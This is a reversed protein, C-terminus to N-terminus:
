KCIWLNRGSTRRILVIKLHFHNHIMLPIITAPSFHLVPHFGQGLLCKTWWLDWMSPDQCGVFVDTARPSVAQAVMSLSGTRVACYVSEMETICVLWNISYLSIIATQEWIWVFCMVQIIYLSGTRVACYVYETETICVLWNISYLSIIATKNQSGCLVYLYATHPLVHFQQINFQHYMYHGSTTCMTVLPPVYLPWQAQSPLGFEMKVSKRNGVSCDAQFYLFLQSYGLDASVSLRCNATRQCLPLVFSQLFSRPTVSLWM